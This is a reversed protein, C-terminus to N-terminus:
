REVLGGACREVLQQDLTQRIGGHDADGVIGRDCAEMAQTAMQRRGFAPRM